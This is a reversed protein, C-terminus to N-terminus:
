EIAVKADPGRMRRQRWRDVAEPDFRVSRGFRVHPIRDHRAETLVWGKSVGLMKGIDSATVLQSM